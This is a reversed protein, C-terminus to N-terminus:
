RGYLAVLRRLQGPLARRVQDWSFRWNWNDGTTGPVNMRHSGDLALLDQL